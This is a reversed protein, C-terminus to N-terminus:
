SAFAGRHVLGHVISTFRLGFLPCPLSRYSPLIGDPRRTGLSRKRSDVALERVLLSLPGRSIYLSQLLGAMLNSCLVSPTNRSLAAEYVVITTSWTSITLRTLMSRTLLIGRSGPLEATSAEAVVVSLVSSVGSGVTSYTNSRKTAWRSVRLPIWYLNRQYPYVATSPM